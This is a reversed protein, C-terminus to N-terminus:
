QKWGVPQATVQHRWDVVRSLLSWPLLSEVKSRREQKLAKLVKYRIIDDYGPLYGRWDPRLGVQEYVRALTQPEFYGVHVDPNVYSWKLFRRRHPEANGTTLFFLGGPRLLGSIQGMLGVPDPVHEVVEIATVVDFTGQQEELEPRSLSPVGHSAMWEGAFGDDFGYAEKVGHDRLHTVLGGLGGGYDLWRLDTTGVLNTVAAQVGQWEYRRLTDDDEVERVYQVNKDAGRGHYYDSDYLQEYDVRPDSIFTYACTGCREFHFTLQSFPSVKTGVPAVSSQCVPCRDVALRM